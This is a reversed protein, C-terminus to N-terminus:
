SRPRDDEYRFHALLQQARPLLAGKPDFLPESSVITGLTDHRRSVQGLRAFSVLGFGSSRSLPRLDPGRYTVRPGDSAYLGSPFTRRIPAPESDSGSVLDLTAGQYDSQPMGLLVPVRPYRRPRTFGRLFQEGVAAAPCLEPRSLLQPTAASMRPNCEIIFLRQQADVVFDINAFGFFRRQYLLKGLRLFVRSLRSGLRDPLERSALWQIGAFSQGEAADTQPYYCQLRIPSLAVVGPAVFVTIGYPKGCIRKRVLTREGQHFLGSALLVEVERPDQVFFTGEGGTSEARQLVAQGRVPLPAPSGITYSGGSPRPLRHRRLFADFWLKNEFRQHRYDSMLLLVGHKKAWAYMSESCSCSLLLAQTGSRRLVTAIDSHLLLDQTSPYIGLGPQQLTYPLVQPAPWIQEIWTQEPTGSEVLACIEVGELAPLFLGDLGRPFMAVRLVAPAAIDDRSM